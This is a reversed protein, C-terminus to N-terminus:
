PFSPQVRSLKEITERLIEGIVPFTASPPYLNLVIVVSTVLVGVAAVQAPKFKVYVGDTINGQTVGETGTSIDVDVHNLDFTLTSNWISDVVGNGAWDLNMQASYGLSGSYGKEEVKVPSNVKLGFGIGNPALETFL